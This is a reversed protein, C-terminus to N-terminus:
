SGGVNVIWLSGTAYFTRGDVLQGTLRVPFQGYGTSASLIPDVPFFGMIKGQTSTGFVIQSNAVIDVPANPVNTGAATTRELTLRLPVDKDITNSGYGQPLYVVGMLDPKTASNRYVHDPKLYMSEAALTDGRRVIATVRGTQLSIQGTSATVVNTIETNPDVRDNVRATLKLSKKDGPALLDFSWTYTLMGTKPDLKCPQNGDASVFTVDRPLLDVLTLPSVPSGTKPNELDIQYVLTSGASVTFRGQEDTQAAAGDVSLLTKRLVLGAAITLDASTSKAVTQDSSITVENTIRTDVRLDDRLRVVIEVSGSEGAGLQAFNWVYLGDAYSGFPVDPTARVFTAQEVPLKDILHVNTVPSTNDVNDYSITYTVEAGAAASPISTATSAPDKVVKSLHLPQYEQKPAATTIIRAERTPASAERASIAASVTLSQDAPTSASVQCVFELCRKIDGTQPINSWTYTQGDKDYAGYTKDATASIVTLEQPLQVVVTVGTMSPPYDFCFSYTVLTGVPVLPINAGNTREGSWTKVALSPNLPNPTVPGETLVVGGPRAIMGILTPPNVLTLDSRYVRLERGCCYDFAGTSVFVFGESDVALGVVGFTDALQLEVPETGEKLDHRVLFHHGNPDRADDSDITAGYYLYDRIPDVAVAMAMRKTVIPDLPCWGDTQYVNVVNTASGVYLRNNLTDLCIGEAAAGELHYPSNPDLTLEDRAPNWRFVYLNSTREGVCYVLQKTADYAVGSLSMAGKAIATRMPTLTTADMLLVTNSTRYTVFLRNSSPDMSLGLAHAGELPFTGRRPKSLVANAGVDYAQISASLDSPALTNEAIVFVTKANVRPVAVTLLLGILMLVLTRLKRTCGGGAAYSESVTGAGTTGRMIHKRRNAMPSGM